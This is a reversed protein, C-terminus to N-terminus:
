PSRASRHQLVERVAASRTQVRLKTFIHEVHKHITRPSTGLILGIEPNTKGEIIWHMVEAERTSLGPARVRERTSNNLEESLLLRGAGAPGPAYRVHLSSREARAIRLELLVAGASGAALRARCERVWRDVAEPLRPSHNLSGPFYRELMEIAKPTAWNVRGERDLIAVGVGLDDTAAGLAEIKREAEEFALMNQRAQILHPRLFELVARDREEFAKHKRCIGIGIDCPAGAESLLCAMQHDTDVHRYFDRYIGLERFKRWPIFDTFQYPTRDPQTRYHHLQPHQFFHAELMSALEAIQPVRPRVTLVTLNNKAQIENYGAHECPILRALGDLMTPILQDFRAQAYMEWLFTSIGDLDKHSLTNNGVPM